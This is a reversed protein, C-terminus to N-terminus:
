MRPSLAGFIMSSCKCEILIGKRFDLDRQSFEYIFATGLLTKFRKQLTQVRIEEARGTVSTKISNITDWLIGCRMKLPARPNFAPFAQELPLLGSSIMEALLTASEVLNQYDKEQWEPGGGFTKQVIDCARLAGAIPDEILTALFDDSYLMLLRRPTLSSDLGGAALQLGEPAVHAYRDVM